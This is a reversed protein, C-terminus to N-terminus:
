DEKFKLSMLERHDAAPLPHIAHYARSAVEIIRASAYVEFFKSNYTSQTKGITKRANDDQIRIKVITHWCDREEDYDPVLRVEYRWGKPLPPAGCEVLYETQTM